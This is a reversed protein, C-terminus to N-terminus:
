LDRFAEEAEPANWDAFSDSALKLFGADIPEIRRLVVQDGRIMFGIRSGAKLGLKRRVAAPITAQHKVTLKSVSMPAPM